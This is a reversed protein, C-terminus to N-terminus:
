RAHKREMKKISSLKYWLDVALYGAYMMAGAILVMMSYFVLYELEMNIRILNNRENKNYIKYIYKSNFTLVNNYYFIISSKKMIIPITFTFKNKRKPFHFSELSEIEISVGKVRLGEFRRKKIRKILFNMKCFSDIELTGIEYRDFIDVRLNYVCKEEM